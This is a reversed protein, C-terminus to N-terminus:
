LAIIRSLETMPFLIFILNSWRVICAPLATLLCTNNSFSFEILQAATSFFKLDYKFKFTEFWGLSSTKPNHSSAPTCESFVWVYMPLAHSFVRCLFAWVRFKRGKLCGCVPSLRMLMERFMYCNENKAGRWGWLWSKFYDKGDLAQNM